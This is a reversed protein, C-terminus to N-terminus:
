DYFFRNSYLKNSKKTILEGLENTFAVHNDPVSRKYIKTGLGVSVNNGILCDGVVACHPLLSVHKGIRPYAGDHAGITVGQNISLFNGYEAKGIVTGTIHLFIFVKPLECDYMCNVAHLAKNLYMVKEALVIENNKYFENSLIYLYMAYQDTHLHNFSEFSKLKIKGFCYELRKLALHSVKKFKDTDIKKGDPFFNNLQKVTYNQLEVTTLTKKMVFLINVM